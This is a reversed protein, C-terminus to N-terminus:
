AAAPVLGAARLTAVSAVRLPEPFVDFLRALMDPAFGPLIETLRTVHCRAEDPNGRALYTASLAAVLVGVCAAVASCWGGRRADTPSSRSISSDSPTRM